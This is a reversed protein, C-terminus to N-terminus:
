DLSEFSRTPLLNKSGTVELIHDALASSFAGINLENEILERATMGMRARQNENEVLYRITRNWDQPNDPEVWVGVGEMEIDVGLYPNKTIVVPVGSSCAELCATLGIANNVKLGTMDLPIIFGHSESVMEGFKKWDLWEKVIVLRDENGEPMHNLIDSGAGCVVLEALDFPFGNILSVYDRHAKGAAIFRPIKGKPKERPHYFKYEFGWRIQSMKEAPMGLNLFDEEMEKSMCLLKDFGRVYLKTVLRWLANNKKPSQFGVVIVPTKLVGLRRFLSLLAATPHHACYIVDFGKAKKLARWQLDLDGFVGLSKSLQKLIKSKQYDLIEFEFGMEELEPLGWLHQSPAARNETIWLNLIRKIDYNNFALIRIKRSLETEEETISTKAVGGPMNRTFTHVRKSLPLKPRRHSTHWSYEHIPIM